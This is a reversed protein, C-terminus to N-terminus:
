PASQRTKVLELLLKQIELLTTQLADIRKALDDIRKNTEDIRASLSRALDDIRKNVEDIRKNTEDIRASLTKTVEDIRTSLSKTVDDIRKNTEDIRSDLRAIDARIEKLDGVITGLYLILVDETSLKKGERIKGLVHEVAMKLADYAVSSADAVLSGGAM